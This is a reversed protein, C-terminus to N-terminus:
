RRIEESTANRSVALVRYLNETELIDDVIRYREEPTTPAKPGTEKANSGNKKTGATSDTQASNKSYYSSHASGHYSSPRSSGQSSSTGNDM